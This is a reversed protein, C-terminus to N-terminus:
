NIKQLQLLYVDNERMQFDKKFVGDAAVQVVEKSVPAGDNELKIKDVQPKSLQGPKGMALYSAYADNVRYGIRHLVLQYKGSALGKLSVKVIGKAKAPLDRVFYAQNNVSDPLTYSCDWFLVQVEGKANKCIWSSSDANM